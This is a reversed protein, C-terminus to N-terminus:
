VFNFCNFLIISNTEEGEGAEITMPMAQLDILEVAAPTAAEESALHPVFLPALGFESDVVTPLM